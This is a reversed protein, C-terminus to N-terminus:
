LKDFDHMVLGNLVASTQLRWAGEQLTGKAGRNPLFHDAQFIFMPLARKRADYGKKDGVAYLQRCQSIIQKLEQSDTIEHFLQRTCPV